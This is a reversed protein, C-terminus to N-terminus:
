NDNNMSMLAQEIALLSTINKDSYCLLVCEILRKNDNSWWQECRKKCGDELSAMIPNDDDFTSDLKKIRQAIHYIEVMDSALVILKPEMCPRCTDTERLWPDGPLIPITDPESLSMIRNVLSDTIRAAHFFEELSDNICSAYYHASDDKFAYICLRYFENMANTLATDTANTKAVVTPLATEDVNTPTIDKSCSVIVCVAAASVFALAM